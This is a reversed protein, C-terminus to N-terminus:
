APHIPPVVPAQRDQCRPRSGFKYLSQHGTQNRRLLGTSSQWGASLSYRNQCGLLKGTGHELFLLGTVPATRPKWLSLQSNTTSPNRLPSCRPKEEIGSLASRPVSLRSAAQVFSQTEAVAIFATLEAFDRGRMITTNRSLLAHRTYIMRLRGNCQLWKAAADANEQRLDALLAGKQGRQRPSRHRQRDLRGWRSRYGGDHTRKPPLKAAPWRWRHPRTVTAKPRSRHPQMMSRACIM